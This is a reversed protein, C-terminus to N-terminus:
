ITLVQLIEFISGCETLDVLRYYGKARRSVSKWNLSFDTMNLIARSNRPIPEIASIRKKRPCDWFVSGKPSGRDDVTCPLVLQDGPKIEINEVIEPDPTKPYITVHIAISKYYDENQAIELTELSLSPTM